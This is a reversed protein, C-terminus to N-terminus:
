SNDSHYNQLLLRMDYSMRKIPLLDQYPVSKTKEYALSVQLITNTRQIIAEGLDEVNGSICTTFIGGGLLQKLRLTYIM